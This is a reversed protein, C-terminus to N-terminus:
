LLPKTDLDLWYETTKIRNWLSKELQQYSAKWHIHIYATYLLKKSPLYKMIKVKVPNTAATNYQPINIKDEKIYECFSNSLKSLNFFKIKAGKWKSNLFIYRWFYEITNINKYSLKPYYKKDFRDVSLKYTINDHIYSKIDVVKKEVIQDHLEQILGSITRDLEDRIPIYVTFKHNILTEEPIDGETRRWEPNNYSLQKLAQSGNKAMGLIINNGRKVFRTSM